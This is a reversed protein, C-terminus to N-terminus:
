HPTAPSSSSGPSTCARPSVARSRAAGSATGPLLPATSGPAAGDMEQRRTRDFRHRDPQYWDPLPRSDSKKQCGEAHAAAAFALAAQVATGRHHPGRPALGRTRHGSLSRNARGAAVRNHRAGGPRKQAMAPLLRHRGRPPDSARYRSGRTREAATGRCLRGAALGPRAVGALHRPDGTGGRAIPRSSPPRKACHGAIPAASAPLHPAAGAAIRDAAPLRGVPASLAAGCPAAAPHQGRAGEGGRGRSLRCRHRALGAVHDACTGCVMRYLRRCRRSLRAKHQRRPRRAPLRRRRGRSRRLEAGASAPRRHNRARVLRAGRLPRGGAPLHAALAPGMGAPAAAIATEDVSGGGSAALAGHALASVVAADPTADRYSSAVAPKERAEAVDSPAAIATGTVDGSWARPTDFGRRQQSDSM